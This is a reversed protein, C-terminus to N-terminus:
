QDAGYQRNWFFGVHYFPLVYRGAVKWTRQLAKDIGTRGASLVDTRRVMGRGSKKKQLVPGPYKGCIKGDNGPVGSGVDM